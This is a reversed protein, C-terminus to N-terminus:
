PDIPMGSTLVCYSLYTCLIQQTSISDPNISIEDVENSEIKNADKSSNITAKDPPDLVIGYLDGGKKTQQFIFLHSNELNEEEDESLEIISDSVNIIGSEQEHM